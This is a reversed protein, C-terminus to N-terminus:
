LKARESLPGLQAYYKDQTKDRTFNVQLCIGLRFEPNEKWESDPVLQDSNDRDHATEPKTEGTEELRGANLVRSPRRAGEM